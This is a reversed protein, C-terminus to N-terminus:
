DSERQFHQAAKKIICNNKKVNNKNEWKQQIALLKPSHHKPSCKIKCSQSDHHMNSHDPEWQM